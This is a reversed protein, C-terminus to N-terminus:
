CGQVPHPLAGHGKGLLFVSDRLLRSRSLLVKRALSLGLSQQSLRAPRHQGTTTLLEPTTSGTVELGTIHKAFAAPTLLLM